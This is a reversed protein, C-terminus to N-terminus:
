AQDHDDRPHREPEVAARRHRADVQAHRRHQRHRRQDRRGVCRQRLDGVDLGDVDVKTSAEEQDEGRTVPRTVLVEPM